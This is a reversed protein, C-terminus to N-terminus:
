RRVGSIEKQMEMLKDIVEKRYPAVRFREESMTWDVRTGEGTEFDYIAMMYYIAEKRSKIHRLISRGSSVHTIRWMNMNGLDDNYQHVCLGVGVWMEVDVEKMGDQVQYQASGQKDKVVHGFAVLITDKLLRPLLKM